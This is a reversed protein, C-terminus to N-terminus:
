KPQRSFGDHYFYRSNYWDYFESLSTQQQEFTSTISYDWFLMVDYLWGEIVRVETEDLYDTWRSINKNSIGSFKGTNRYTNGKFKEGFKTPQLMSDHWNINLQDAVDRMIENPTSTLDEFKIAHFYKTGFEVHRKACDLDLRARNLLSALGEMPKEGMKKYHSEYGAKIAAYNDRPDRIIQLTKLHHLNNKFNSLHVTQSTEKIVMPLSEDLDLYKCFTTAVADLIAAPQTLDSIEYLSWFLELFEHSKYVRSNLSIKTNNFSETSKKIVLEFRDKLTAPDLKKHTWYPYFAYLVSLDVPYVNLEHHGDFLSHLLTTGSKRHGTLLIYKTQSYKM